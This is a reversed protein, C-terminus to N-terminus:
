RSPRASDFERQSAPFAAAVMPGRSAGDGSATQMAEVARRTAPSSSKNLSVLQMSEDASRAPTDLAKILRVFSDAATGSGYVSARNIQPLIDLRVIAGGPLILHFSKAGLEAPTTATLRNGMMRLLTEELQRGSIHELSIPISKPARADSLRPPVNLSGSQQTPLPNSVKINEIRQAIRSQLEPLAYVLIQATRVDPTIRVESQGRFEQQLRTSIPEILGAPCPYARLVPANQRGSTDQAFVLPNNLFILGLVVVVLHALAKCPPRKKKLTKQVLM